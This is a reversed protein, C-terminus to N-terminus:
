RDGKEHSPSRGLTANWSWVVRSYEEPFPNPRRFDPWWNEDEGPEQIFGEDIGFEDLWGLLRGYEEESIPRSELREVGRKWRSIEEPVYFQLMLSLLAKGRGHEAFWELVRCSEDMLGPLVLHRVITGSRLEDGEWRLPALEIMKKVVSVATDPYDKAAFLRGSLVPNLLKLDPLFIDSFASVREVTELSEYGSSNWLVPLSLGRNRASKMAKEISPLFPTASVFNLNKAGEAEMDLFIDVLEEVDLAAGVESRSLQRNQCFSCRLTCGSFFLAGSGGEGTM